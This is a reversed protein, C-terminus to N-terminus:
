HTSGATCNVTRKWFSTRAASHSGSPSVGAFSTRTRDSSCLRTAPTSSNKDAGFMKTFVKGLNDKRQAADALTAAHAVVSGFVEPHKFGLKLAGFGGMSYGHLSRGERAAVTRYNADIHPVLERVICTEDM